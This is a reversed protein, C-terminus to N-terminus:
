ASLFVLKREMGDRERKGLTAKLVTGVSTENVIARERGKLFSRIDSGIHIGTGEMRYVTHHGQSQARLYHRLSKLVQSRGRLLGSSLTAKGALRDARDNGKM